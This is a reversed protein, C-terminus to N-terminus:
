MMHLRLLTKRKVLCRHREKTWEVAAEIAALGVDMSTTTDMIGAAMATAMTRRVTQATAMADDMTTNEKSGGALSIGAAVAFLTSFFGPKKQPPVVVYVDDEPESDSFEGDAGEDAFIDINQKKSIRAFSADDILTYIEELRERDFAPVATEAMRSLVPKDVLM